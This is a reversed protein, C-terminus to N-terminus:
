KEVCVSFVSEGRFQQHKGAGTRYQYRGGGPEARALGPWGRLLQEGYVQGALNDEGCMRLYHAFNLKASMIRHRMSLLGTDFTLVPKPTSVPLHLLVRVFMNQLEELQEISSESIQTWTNSNNLLMPCVSMEWLVLAGVAGGVCQSRFDDIIGRIEFIAAKVKPTRDEITARVSAALGNENFKSTM